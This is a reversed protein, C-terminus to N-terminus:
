CLIKSSVERWTWLNSVGVARLASAGVHGQPAPDLLFVFFNCIIWTYCSKQKLEMESFENIKRPFDDFIM